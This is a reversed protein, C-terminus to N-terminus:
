LDLLGAPVKVQMKNNELDVSMVVSKLAPLLILGKHSGDPTKIHYVDNAGTQQVDTITGLLKDEEYVQLGILQFCYYEGEPLEQLDDRDIQLYTHLLEQVTDRDAIGDLQLLYLGKHVSSQTITMYKKLKQVYVKAGVAFRIDEFDTLSMVKLQGKVGHAGMIEGIDIMRDSKKGATIQKSM